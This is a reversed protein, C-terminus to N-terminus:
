TIIMPPGSSRDRSTTVTPPQKHAPRVCEYSGEEDYCTQCQIPPPGQPAFQGPADSRSPPVTAVTSGKAIESDPLSVANAVAEYLRNIAMGEQPHIGRSAHLELIEVLYPHLVDPISIIKM